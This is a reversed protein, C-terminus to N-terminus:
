ETVSLIMDICLTYVDPFGYLIDTVNIVHVCEKGWFHESDGWHQDSNRKKYTPNKMQEETQILRKRKKGEQQLKRLQCLYQITNDITSNYTIEYTIYSQNEEQKM